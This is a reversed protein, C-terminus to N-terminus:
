PPRRTPTSRSGGPRTRPCPSPRRPPRPRTGPPAPLTVRPRRGRAADREPREGTTLFATVTRDGCANGNRLYAGHGGSDVSVMRARDGLAERMRLAGRHPTAPDRLNQVMLINSPGEDTIRVPKEATDNKWFACPMVNAPMGATLPYRLRDAAVDREYSAVSRPWRVDNCIVGIHVAADASSVSMPEVAPPPADGVDRASVILEALGPFASDGYLASQLRARLRNGTLREKGDPGREPVRDLREALALFLPRVDEPREAVRHRADRAPDAAWKAFDPFRDEVAGSMNAFWGREVRSPDPDVISDLVMRDVRDPYKQAYVAGVYTGYSTAWASLKREGLAQRLREIDRVENLTSFSRILEGGNRACREAVRRAVAVSGSIDGDPAPWPRLRTVELDDRDLGCDARTSGGVGRPDFSVIDYAGRTEARLREGVIALKGRGSDGPGGPVVLLVGRRVEPRDSRLRSVAVSVSRGKPERYDLPVSLDACEQAPADACPAWALASPKAAVAPAAQAPTVALTAAVGACAALALAKRNTIAM